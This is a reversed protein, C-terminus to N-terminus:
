DANPVTASEDPEASDSESEVFLHKREFLALTM